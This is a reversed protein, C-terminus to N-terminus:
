RRMARVRARLAELREARSEANDIFMEPKAARAERTATRKAFREFSDELEVVRNKLSAIMSEIEDASKPRKRQHNSWAWALVALTILYAGVTAGIAYPNM